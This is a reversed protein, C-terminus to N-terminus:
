DRDRRVREAHLWYNLSESSLAGGFPDEAPPRVRASWGPTITDLTVLLERWLALLLRALFAKM